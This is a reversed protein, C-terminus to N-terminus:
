LHRLPDMSSHLLRVVVIGGSIDLYYAIHSGIPFSFLGSEIANRGMGAHPNEALTNLRMELEELYKLAQKDGWESATYGLIGDLDAEARAAFIVKGV